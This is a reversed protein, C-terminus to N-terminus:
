ATAPTRRRADKPAAKIKSSTKSLDFGSSSMLLSGMHEPFHGLVERMARNARESDREAIAHAVELHSEIDAILVKGQLRQIGFYWFRSANNHLTVLNQEMYSNRCAAAMSRHFVQDMRVLERFERKAIVAKYGDFASKIVAVEAASAREAALAACAGELLIRAEFVEQVERLGLSPILTGIRAHREVMKELSLRFLADRVVAIGLGFDEALQKEDISSGAPLDGFIIASLIQEYADRRLSGSGQLKSARVV